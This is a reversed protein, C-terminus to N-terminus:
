EGIAEPNSVPAIVRSRAALRALSSQRRRSGSNLSGFSDCFRASTSRRRATPARCPRDGPSTAIAQVSRCGATVPAITPAADLLHLTHHTGAVKPEALFLDGRDLATQVLSREM